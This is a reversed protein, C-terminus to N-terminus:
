VHNSRSAEDNCLYPSGHSPVLAQPRLESQAISLTNSTGLPYQATQAIRPPHHSATLCGPSQAMASSGEFMVRRTTGIVGDLVCSSTSGTAVTSGGAGVPRSPQPFSAKNGASQKSQRSRPISVKGAILSEAVKIEEATGTIRFKNEKNVQEICAGSQTEMAKVTKGEKGIVVGMKDEPVYVYADKTGPRLDQISGKKGGKNAPIPFTRRVVVHSTDQQKTLINKPVHSRLRGAWSVVLRSVTKTESICKGSKKKLVSVESTSEEFFIDALLKEVKSFVLTQNTIGYVRNHTRLFRLHESDLELTVGLRSKLLDCTKSCNFTEPPVLVKGGEKKVLSTYVKGETIAEALRGKILQTKYLHEEVTGCTFVRYIIVDKTQGLRYVRDAIQNDDSINWSHDVIIVRTAVTLNLGEGGVKASLLFISPGDEVGFIELRDMMYIQQCFVLIKLKKGKGEGQMNETVSKPQNREEKFMQKILDLIFNIKCSSRTNDYSPRDVDVSELLNGALRKVQRGSKKDDLIKWLLYPDNCISQYLASLTFPIEQEQSRFQTTEHHLQYLKEYLKVQLKTLRLWIVVDHKKCTLDGSEILVSKNRRLLYPSITSWCRALAKLYEEKDGKASNSYQGKKIPYMFNEDFTDKDGLIGPQIFDMLSYIDRGITMLAQHPLNSPPWAAATRDRLQSAHITRIPDFLPAGSM